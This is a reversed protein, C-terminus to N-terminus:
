YIDEALWWQRVWHSGDSRFGGTLSFIVIPFLLIVSILSHALTCQLYIPCMWRVDNSSQIPRSFKAKLSYKCRYGPPVDFMERCSHNDSWHFPFLHIARPIWLVPHVSSFSNPKEVVTTDPHLNRRNTEGKGKWNQKVRIMRAPQQYFRGGYGGEQHVQGKEEKLRRRSWRWPWCVVGLVQYGPALYVLNTLSACLEIMYEIPLFYKLQEFSFWRRLFLSWILTWYAQPCLHVRWFSVKCKEKSHQAFRLIIGPPICIRKSWDFSSLIKALQTPEVHKCQERALKKFRQIRLIQLFHLTASFEWKMEEPESVFHWNWINM